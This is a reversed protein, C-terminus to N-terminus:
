QRRWWTIIGLLAVAAPLLFWSSYRIFDFEQRTMVLERFAFPKSRISILTYDEALWNVANLLLDSNTYAYFYKNIAFDSDGIVVISTARPTEGPNTPPKPEEGLTSLAKVALAVTAPGQEDNKPDFTNRDPDTTVWSRGSTLALPLYQIWPPRRKPEPGIKVATAQPLFTVDLHTTIDTANTYQGRQLVPTRPDGTVSSQVDVVTGGGVLIGWEALLDHYSSPVNPDLLFLARGGSKLWSGLQEKEDTLLDRTPGAIVLVAADGPIKGAQSLNLPAIRYNEGLIARAAFGFGQGGEEISSPDKENHGTLFYVLKQKAGTVILLASTLDQETVPPLSLVFRKGTEAAEFVIVPYQTVNYQRAVSPDAEPDVARYSLKNGSRKRFEYLLDEARQKLIGQDSQTPVFFETVRVPEKLEQLVKVTQAALTFQKTATTDMRANSRFSIFNVLVAIAIFIVIMLIANVAYRGRRGAVAARVRVFSALLALLLLVGGVGLVGLAFSRLDQVWIYIAAGGVVAAAGIVSLLVALSAVFSQLRQWFTPGAEPSERPATPRAM